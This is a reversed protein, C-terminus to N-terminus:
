GGSEPVFQTAQWPRGTKDTVTVIVNIGTVPEFLTITTYTTSINVSFKQYTIPYVNGAIDTIVDPELKITDRTFGHYDDINDYLIRTTEGTEPGLDDPTGGAPDAYAKSVVEELFAEALTTARNDHLAEYTQMQAVAVAQTVAIVAFSMITTAILVELMTFGSQHRNKRKM